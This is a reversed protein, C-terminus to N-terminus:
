FTAVSSVSAGADAVVPLTATVISEIVRPANNLGVGSGVGVAFSMISQRAIGMISGVLIMGGAIVRGLTGQTWETLDLWVQDFATGGTGAMAAHATVFVALAALAAITEKHM